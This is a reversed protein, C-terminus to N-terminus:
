NLKADLEKWIEWDSLSAEMDVVQGFPLQILCIEIDWLCCKRACYNGARRRFVISKEPDSKAGTM